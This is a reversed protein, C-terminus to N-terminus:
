ARASFVLGYRCHKTVLARLLKERAIWPRGTEAYLIEFRSSLNKLIVDVM